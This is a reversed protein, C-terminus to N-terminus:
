FAGQIKEGSEIIEKLKPEASLANELTIKPGWPVLKSIRNAEDYPVDSCGPLM